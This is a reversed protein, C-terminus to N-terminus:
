AAAHKAGAANNYRPYAVPTTSAQSQFDMLEILRSAPFAIEVRTGKGPRSEFSIRAGMEDVLRQVISLGLGFGSIGATKQGRFNKQGLRAVDEPAIGNGNDAVSLTWGNASVSANIEVSAGAPSFKVANTILNTLIQRMAGSEVLKDSLIEPVRNYLTVSQQKAMPKLLAFCDQAVTGFKVQQRAPSNTKDELIASTLEILSRGAQAILAPYTARMEVTCTPNEGIADALGVMAALPARLEHALECSIDNAQKIGSSPDQRIIAILLQSNHRHLKVETKTFHQGGNIQMRLTLTQNALSANDLGILFAPRDAVHVRDLLASGAKLQSDSAAIIKSHRDCQVIECGLLAASSALHTVANHELTHEGSAPKRNGSSFALGTMVSGAAILAQLPSVVGTALAATVALAATGGALWELRHASFARMSQAASLLGMISGAPMLWNLGDRSADSIGFVFGGTLAISAAALLLAAKVDVAGSANVAEPVKSSVINANLITMADLKEASCLDASLTQVV